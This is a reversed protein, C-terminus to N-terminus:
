QKKYKLRMRYFNTEVTRVSVFLIESLEKNSFDFYDLFAYLKETKTLEENESIHNIILPFKTNLVSSVENWNITKLEMLEEKSLYTNLNILAEKRNTILSLRIYNYENLWNTYIALFILNVGILTNLFTNISFLTDSLIYNYTSLLLLILIFIDQLFYLGFAITYYKKFNGDFVELMDTKTKDKKVLYIFFILLITDIIIQFLINKDIYPNSYYFIFLSKQAILWHVLYLVISSAVISLIVKRRQTKKKKKNLYFLTVFPIILLINECITAYSDIQWKSALGYNNTLLWLLSSTFYFLSFVLFLTETITHHKRKTVFLVVVIFSIFLNLHNLFM